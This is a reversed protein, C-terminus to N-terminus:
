TDFELPYLLSILRIIFRNNSLELMELEISRVKADKSYKLSRIVGYLWRTRPLKEDKILILEGVKPEISYVKGQKFRTHKGVQPSWYRFCISALTHSGIYYGSACIDNVITNSIPIGQPLLMPFCLEGYYKHIVYCMLISCLTALLVSGRYLLENLSHKTKGSKTTDGM